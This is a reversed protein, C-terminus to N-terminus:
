ELWETCEESIGTLNEPDKQSWYLNLEGQCDKENNIATVSLVILSVGLVGFLMLVLIGAIGVSVFEDTM